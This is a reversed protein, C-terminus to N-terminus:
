VYGWMRDDMQNYYARLTSRVEKLESLLEPTVRDVPTQIISVEREELEIVEDMFNGKVIPSKPDSMVM